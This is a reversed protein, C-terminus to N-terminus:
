LKIYYRHPLAIYIIFLHDFIKQQGNEQGWGASAVAVIVKEEARGEWRGGILSLVVGNLESDDADVVRDEGPFIQRRAKLAWRIASELTSRVGNAGEGGLDVELGSTLTSASVDHNTNGRWDWAGLLDITFSSDGTDVLKNDKARRVIGEDISNASLDVQAELGVISLGRVGPGVVVKGGLKNSSFVSNDTTNEIM